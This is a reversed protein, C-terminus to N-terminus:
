DNNESDGERELALIEELMIRAAAKPCYRGPLGNERWARVGLEQAATLDVCYPPSALDIVPTGRRVARLVDGTLLQVPPTAFVYDARRVAMALSMADCSCSEAGITEMEARVDKRRAAAVVEAGLALLNGTLAKGIRGCGIVACRSGYLADDSADMAAHIAGEATLVANKLVFSERQMPDTCRVEAPIGCLGRGLVYLRAEPQLQRLIAEMDTESGSVPNQTVVVDAERLKSRVHGKETLVDALHRFREDGGIVAFRM